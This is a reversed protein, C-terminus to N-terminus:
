RRDPKWSALGVWRGAMRCLLRPSFALLRLPIILTTGLLTIWRLRRAGPIARHKRAFTLKSQAHHYGRWYEGRWPTSGGVSGRSRHVATVEPRIVMPLRADFLRLCLDDDEYYLFFDEDFYGVRAFRELRLLMAAGCVFGVCAPGEAAPGSSRWSMSPWRYNVDPRGSADLLQPALLAAEPMDRAALVLEALGAPSLDCDPNLLLAFPTTVRALALNNAAGFGKNCGHALVGAHPWRQRALEVTGDGSGNDSLLVHQCCRLLPDLAPLCHASNYSVVVVTVLDLLRSGQCDPPERQLDTM